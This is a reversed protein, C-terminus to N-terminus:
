AWLARPFRPNEVRASLKEHGCSLFPELLNSANEFREILADDDAVLVSADDERIGHKQFHAFHGGFVDHAPGNHIQVQRVLNPPQLLEDRTAFGLSAGLIFEVYRLGIASAQGDGNGGAKDVTAIAPSVSDNGSGVDSV